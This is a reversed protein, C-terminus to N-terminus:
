SGTLKEIMRKRAEEQTQALLKKKDDASIVTSSRAETRLSEKLERYRSLEEIISKFEEDSIAQDELAKAVKVAVTDLKSQALVRIQDHKQAKATLKTEAFKGIAGLIGTFIGVTQLPIAIPAAFITVLLGVGAASTGVATTFLVGDVVHLSKIGKRYKKTLKNRAELEAQFYSQIENIKQLRFSDAPPASPLTPYTRPKEEM